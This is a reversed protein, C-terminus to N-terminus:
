GDFAFGRLVADVYAEAPAWGHESVTVLMQGAGTLACILAEAERGVDGEGPRFFVGPAGRFEDTGCTFGQAKLDAGVQVALDRGACGPTTAGVAHRHPCTQPRTKVAM